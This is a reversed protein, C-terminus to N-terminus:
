KTAVAILRKADMDYPAGSFDGYFEVKSFGVGDLLTALELATYIRTDFSHEHMKDDKYYLWRSHLTTFCNIVSYELLVKVGGSEFWINKEFDRCMLEKGQTDILYKGGSKLSDYINKLGVIEDDESELLGFSTYLNVAYDFKNETTFKLLDQEIYTPNKSNKRNKIARDIYNKTIDLGTVTIGNDAFAESYRGFGCCVDILSEGKKISLLDIISKSDSETSELRDLDFMLIEFEDWFSNDYCINM